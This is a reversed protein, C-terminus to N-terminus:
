DAVAHYLNFCETVLHVHHDTSNWVTSRIVGLAHRSDRELEPRLHFLDVHGVSVLQEDANTYLEDDDSEDEMVGETKWEPSLVYRNPGCIWGM